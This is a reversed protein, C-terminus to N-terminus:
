QVKDLNNFKIYEEETMSTFKAIHDREEQSLQYKGNETKGGKPDPKSPVNTKMANEAFKVLDGSIWADRQAECVQNKSLMENFQMEKEATKIKGNLADNEEQLQAIKTEFEGAKKALKVLDGNEAKLDEITKNALKLEAKAEALTIAESMTKDEQFLINQQQKSMESMPIIPPLKLFPINTLGGGRLVPGYSEGTEQDTYDLQFEASFYAFEKQQLAKLGNPTWEAQVWLSKRDQSLWCDQIWGAAKEHNNHSYDIPLHEKKLVNKKFNQVMTDLMDTTLEFEYGSHKFSGTYLIPFSTQEAFKNILNSIKQDEHFTNFQLAPLISALIYTVGSGPEAVVREISNSDYQALARAAFMVRYNELSEEIKFDDPDYGKEFLWYDVSDKSAWLARTFIAGIVDKGDIQMIGM